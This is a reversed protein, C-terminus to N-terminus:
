SLIGFSPCVRLIGLVLQISEQLFFSMTGGSISSMLSSLSEWQYGVRVMLEQQTFKRYSKRGIVKWGLVNRM